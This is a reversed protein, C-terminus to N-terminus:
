IHGMRKEGLGFLWVMSRERGARRKDGDGGNFRGGGRGGGLVGRRRKM